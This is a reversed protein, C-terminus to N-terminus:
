IWIGVSLRGLGMGTLLMLIIQIFFAPALSDVFKRKSVLSFATGAIICYVLPIFIRIIGM